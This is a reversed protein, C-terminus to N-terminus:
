SSSSSSPPLKIPLKQLASNVMTKIRAAAMITSFRSAPRLIAGALVATLAMAPTSGSDTLSTMKGSYSGSFMVMLSIVGVGSAVASTLSHDEMSLRPLGFSNRPNGKELYLLM